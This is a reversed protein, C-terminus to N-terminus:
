NIDIATFLKIIELDIKDMVENPVILRRIPDFKNVPKVIRYKSITTIQHTKAYTRKKLTSYRMLVKSHQELNKTILEFKETCNESDMNFLENYIFKQSEFLRSYISKELSDGLDIHHKNSKSTLPVVTLLENTNRDRKTLVIAFHKGKIESGVQPSFDAM